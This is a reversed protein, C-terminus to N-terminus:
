QNRPATYGTQGAEQGLARIPGPMEEQWTLSEMGVHLPHDQVTYVSTGTESAYHAHERWSPASLLLDGAEWDIREGDVVSYGTGKFHYNIAASNHRHGPGEGRHRYGPPKQTLTVFFNSTAGQKRETAPNYLAMITRKGDGPAQSMLASMTAYPWHLLSNPVPEIDVLFEYGRLRAGTPSISEDPATERSISPTDTFTTSGTAGHLAAVETLEESYHAGLQTLLPTNSYALRVWIESGQNLFQHPKMSPINCVDYRDLEVSTGDVRVTGKGSISIEVLSSNRRVPATSEGPLLVEVGVDIGPSLGLGVSGPHVFLATRRGNAPKPVDALRKITADIDLRSIKIPACPTPRGLGNGSTDVVRAGSGLILEPSTLNTTM